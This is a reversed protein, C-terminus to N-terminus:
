RSSAMGAFAVLLLLSSGLLVPIATLLQKLFNVRRRRRLLGLRSELTLM